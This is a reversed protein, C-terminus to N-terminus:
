LSGPNRKPTMRAIPWVSKVAAADIQLAPRLAPEHMPITQHKVDRTPMGGDIEIKHLVVLPHAAHGGAEGGRDASVQDPPLRFEPDAAIEDFDAREFAAKEDGHREAERRALCGQADVAEVPRVVADLCPEMGIAGGM